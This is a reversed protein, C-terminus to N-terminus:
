MIPIKKTIQQNESEITLLYVGATEPAPINETNDWVGLTRGTIDYLTIREPAAQSLITIQNGNQWVLINNDNALDEIGTTNGVHLFFRGIGSESVQATYSNHQMDTFVGNQRDELQIKSDQMGEQHISFTIEQPQLLDLGVPVICNEMSETPLAQIAFDHGNDEILKSYLAMEPNGKMKAADYSPDLGLTMGQYFTIITSNGNTKSKAFLEIGPWSEKEKYFSATGHKRTDANFNIDGDDNVKVMFAQGPQIYDQNIESGSGEGSFGSNCIVQYYNEGSTYAGSENWIYIAQYNEDLVNANDALFNDDDQGDNTIAINSSFPNGVLNTGPGTSEGTYTAAISQDTNRPSGSFSITKNDGSSKYNIAYGQASNFSGGDYTVGSSANLIDFWIGTFGNDTGDEDWWYFQDIDAGTAATLGLFENFNRSDNVPASIYHWKGKTIYRQATVNGSTTGVVILSSTGEATSELTISGGSEVTLDGSVTLYSPADLTLSADAEIKLNYIQTLNTPSTSTLTFDDNDVVWYSGSTSVINAENNYIGQASAGMGFCIALLITIYNKM